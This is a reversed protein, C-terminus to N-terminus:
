TENFVRYIYDDITYYSNHENPELYKSKIDETIFDDKKYKVLFAKNNEYTKHKITIIPKLPKVKIRTSTIKVIQWFVVYKLYPSSNHFIIEGVKYKHQYATKTHNYDRKNKIDPINLLRMFDKCTRIEIFRDEDRQRKFNNLTNKFEEEEKKEEKSHEEDEDEDCKIFTIHIKINYIHVAGIDRDYLSKLKPLEFLNYTTEGHTFYHGKSGNSGREKTGYKNNFWRIADDHEEMDCDDTGLMCKYYFKISQREEKEDDSTDSYSETEPETSDDTSDQPPTILDTLKMKKFVRKVYEEKTEENKMEVGNFIIGSM